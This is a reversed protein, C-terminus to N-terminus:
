GRAGGGAGVDIEVTEADGGDDADESEDGDGVGALGEAVDASRVVGEGAGGSLDVVDDGRIGGVVREDEGDAARLEGQHGAKGGDAVVEASHIEGDANLGVVGAPVDRPVLDFVVLHVGEARRVMELSDGGKGREVVGLSVEEDEISEIGGCGGEWRERMASGGMGAEDAGGEALLGPGGLEFVLRRDRFNTVYLTDDQVIRGRM